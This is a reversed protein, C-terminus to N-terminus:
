PSRFLHTVLHRDHPTLAPEREPHWMVALWRLEAHELAEVGGQADRYLAVCDHALSDAAIGFDHYSNVELSAELPGALRSRPAAAHVAHRTGAHGTVPTVRGGLHVNMMQMGRCVGLVPWAARRAAELLLAECRDREPATDRGGPAAVLDNGGTLLLGGIGLARAWGAPDQLGNPVPVAVLGLAELCAPWRQDLADRRETRRADEVLRQTIAIRTM